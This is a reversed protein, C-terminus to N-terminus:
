IRAISDAPSCHQSRRGYRCRGDTTRVDGFRRVGVARRSADTPHGV